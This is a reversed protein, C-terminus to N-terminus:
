TIMWFIFMMVKAFADRGFSAESESHHKEMVEGRVAIVRHCLAKKVSEPSM